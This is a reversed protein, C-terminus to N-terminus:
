KKPPVSRVPPEPDPLIQTISDKIGQIIPNNKAPPTVEKPMPLEELPKPAPPAKAIPRRPPVSSGAGPRIPMSM